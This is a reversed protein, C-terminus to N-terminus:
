NKKFSDRYQTPTQGRNKRYLRSFYFQDDIGVKTAVEAVTTDPMDRFYQEARDLRAEIISQQFTMKLERRFLHSITSRSRHAFKAADDLTIKRHLNDEIWRLVKLVVRDGRLQVIERTIIYNIIVEFLGLIDKVREPEFYPLEFFAKELRKRFKVPCKRLVAPSIKETSRFQGIMAFGALQKELYIPAVAEEIGAHCRYSIPQQRETCERRKSEDLVYCINRGFIKDQIINCFCSNARNLGRKLVQGDPSFFMIAVGFGAAFHDFIKQVEEDLVIEIANTV